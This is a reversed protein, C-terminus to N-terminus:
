LSRQLTKDPVLLCGSTFSSKLKHICAKCTPMVNYKSRFVRKLNHAIKPFLYGGAFVDMVKDLFDSLLNLGLPLAQLKIQFLNGKSYIELSSLTEEGGQLFM